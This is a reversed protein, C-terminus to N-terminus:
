QSTFQSKEIIKIAVKKGTMKNLAEIVQSFAGRGLFKIPKCYQTIFNQQREEPDILIDSLM